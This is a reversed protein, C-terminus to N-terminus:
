VLFISTASLTTVGALTAIKVAAGRGSGDADYYLTREARNFVFRVRANSATGQNARVEFRGAALTGRGLRGFAASRFLLNDGGARFDTITDGGETASRYGFSDAGAGGTLRDAGTGGIITDAARGGLITDNGAGGFLDNSRTSRSFNIVDAAALASTSSRTLATYTLGVNTATMWTNWAGAHSQFQITFSSVMQTRSNWTLNARLSTGDSQWQVTRRTPSSSTVSLPGELVWDTADFHAYNGPTVTLRM